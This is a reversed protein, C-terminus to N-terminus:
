QRIQWKKQKLLIGLQIRKYAYNSSGDEFIIKIRYGGRWKEPKAKTIAKKASTIVEQLWTPLDKITTM